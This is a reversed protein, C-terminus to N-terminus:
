KAEEIATEQNAPLVQLVKKSPPAIKKSFVNIVPKKPAVFKKETRQSSTSLAEKKEPIDSL